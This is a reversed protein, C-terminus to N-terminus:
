AVCLKLMFISAALFVNRTVAAIDANVNNFVQWRVDVEHAQLAVVWYGFRKGDLNSAFAFFFDAGAM